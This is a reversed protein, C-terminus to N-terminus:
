LKGELGIITTRYPYNFSYLILLIIPNHLSDPIYGPPITSEAGKKPLDLTSSLPAEEPKYFFCPFLPFSFHSYAYIIPNWLTSSGGQLESGVGRQFRMKTIISETNVALSNRCHHWHMCMDFFQWYCFIKVTSEKRCHVKGRRLMRNLYGLRQGLVVAIHKMDRLTDM